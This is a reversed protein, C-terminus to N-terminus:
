REIKRERCPPGQKRTECRWCWHWGHSANRLTFVLFAEPYLLFPFCGLPRETPIGNGWGCLPISNSLPIWEGQMELEELHEKELANHAWSMSERRHSPLCLCQDILCSELHLFFIFILRHQSICWSLSSDGQTVSEQIWVHTISSSQTYEHYIVCSKVSHIEGFLDRDKEVGGLISFLRAPWGLGMLNRQYTNKWKGCAPSSISPLLLLKSM